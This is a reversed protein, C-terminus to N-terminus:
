RVASSTPFLPQGARAMWVGVIGLSAILAMFFWAPGAYLRTADLTLPADAAFNLVLFTVILAFLGFRLGVVLLCAVLVATSGLDLWPYLPNLSNRKIVIVFLVITVIAVTVNNGVVRAVPGPTLSALARLGQRILSLMLMTMMGNLLANFPANTVTAIVARVGHLPSFLTLYPAPAPYGLVPPLLTGMPELLALLLGAITGAVLDRGVLPDRLRGTTLRSWTILVAPWTRRVYPELALYVVFLVGSWFLMEGFTAFMRDVESLSAVHTPAIAYTLVGTGFAFAWTRFAGRRDGRGLKVNRRAVLAAALPVIAVILVGITRWVASAEPGAGGELPVWSGVIEFMTPRGRFAAAEIRIPVDPAEPFAGTWAKWEDAYTRPLVAPEAETFRSRDLGAAQFLVDWNIASPATKLSPVARFILLRGETDLDIRVMGRTVQPPDSTSVPDTDDYPVLTGPGSRYWFVVASPRGTALTNWQEPTWRQGAAWTLYPQDFYFGSASDGVPDTYGLTRRLEAARDLLVARPKNLPVRALVSARDALAAMLILLVMLGTMLVAGQRTSLAASEGGAAAVMEPSPTEGAALAAALPDGGPLSAAVALASGPRKAPDRELCRMIAREVAPDLTRTIEAPSVITGSEHQSVLDPLSKADFARRGTFLEYLVLGLAFIDSRVTVERGQLQEPAMYAPTGARIDTVAEATALSFDMIRVRGQGDLMINAPKLDRHLVGREHAAALGVCIQRAIEIARDESFRGFRRLSASLDEGDVYEMSLFMQGDVEGIDYVRCVNPHSVQRATRVETHFQALRQSDRSLGPPLFKLAVPQGLRLDDARYVEGMGGRGLLGIVRYREDLVVGPTFRGHDISGSSTLWGSTTTKPQSPPSALKTQDSGLVTEAESAQVTQGCAPCFRAGAPVTTRCSPCLM